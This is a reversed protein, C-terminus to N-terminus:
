DVIGPQIDSLVDYFPDRAAGSEILARLEKAKEINVHYLFYQVETKPKRRSMEDLEGLAKEKHGFHWYLDALYLYTLTFDPDIKKAELLYRLAKEKDGISLPFGPLMTYLRGLQVLASGHLYTKDIEISREFAKRIEAALQLSNLVGRTLGIMGIAAGVWHHGEPRDPAMKVMERADLLTLKALDLRRKNDKREMRWASFALQAFVVRGRFDDPHQKAYEQYAKLLAANRAPKVSDEWPFPIPDNPDALATAPRLAALGLSLVVILKRM